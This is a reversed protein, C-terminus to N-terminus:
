MISRAFFYIRIALKEFLQKRFISVWALSSEYHGSQDVNHARGPPSPRRADPRQNYMAAMRKVPAFGSRFFFIAPIDLCGTSFARNPRSFGLCDLGKGKIKKARAQGPKAPNQHIQRRSPFGVGARM